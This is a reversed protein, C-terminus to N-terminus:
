LFGWVDNLLHLLLFGSFCCLVYTRHYASAVALLLNVVSVVETNRPQRLPHRVPVFCPSPTRLLRMQTRVQPM